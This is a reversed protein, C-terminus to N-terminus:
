KTLEKCLVPENTTIFDVGKDIYYKMTKADDITWINIKMGLDKFQQLWEPHKEIMVRYHYDPGTLGAKKLEQPSKDGSLYYIETGVPAEKALQLCVNWSFAIYDTRKELGAKKVLRLVEQVCAQERKPDKHSKIECVLQIHGKKVAKLYNKLTPMKEGNALRIKNCEKSTSKQIECGKIIHDHNVYVVDDSSIWVDIESGYINLADANKYSSISNTASGPTKWYGQHAIVKTDAYGVNAIMLILLNLILLKLKM